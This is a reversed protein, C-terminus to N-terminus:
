RGSGGFDHTGPQPDGGGEGGGRAHVHGSLYLLDNLRDRCEGFLWYAAGFKERQDATLEGGNSVIHAVDLGDWLENLQQIMTDTQDITAARLTSAIEETIPVQRDPAIRVFTATRTKVDDM